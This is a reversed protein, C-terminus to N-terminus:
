YGGRRQVGSFCFVVSGQEHGRTKKWGMECILFRNDIKSVKSEKIECSWDTGFGILKEDQIDRLHESRYM